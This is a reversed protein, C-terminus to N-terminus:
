KYIYIYISSRGGHRVTLNSISKMDDDVVLLLMRTAPRSMVTEIAHSLEFQGKEVKGVDCSSNFQNMYTRTIVILIVHAHDM